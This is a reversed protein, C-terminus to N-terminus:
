GVSGIYDDFKTDADKLPHLGFLLKTLKDVTYVLDSDEINIDPRARVILEELAMVFEMRAMGYEGYESMTVRRFPM